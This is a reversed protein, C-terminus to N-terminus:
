IGRQRLAQAQEKTAGHKMAQRALSGVGGAAGHAADLAMAILYKTAPSLAGDGFALKRSQEVADFLAPDAKRITELPHTSM